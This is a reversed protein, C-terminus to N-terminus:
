ITSIPLLFFICQELPTYLHQNCKRSNSLSINLLNNRDTWDRLYSTPGPQWRKLLTSTDLQDRSFSYISDVFRALCLLSIDSDADGHSGTAASLMQDGHKYRM